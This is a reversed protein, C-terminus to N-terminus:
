MRGNGIIDVPFTHEFYTQEKVRPRIRPKWDSRQLRHSWGADQRSIWVPDMSCSARMPISLFNEEHLRRSRRRGSSLSRPQDHPLNRKPFAYTRAPSEFDSLSGASDVLFQSDVFIGIGMARLPLELQRTTIVVLVTVTLITTVNM